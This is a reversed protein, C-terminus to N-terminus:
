GGGGIAALSSAARSQQADALLVLGKPEFNVQWAVTGGTAEPLAVVAPAPCDSSHAVKAGAGIIGNHEYFLQCEKGSEFTITMSGKTKQKMLGGNIREHGDGM